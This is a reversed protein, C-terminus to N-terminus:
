VLEEVCRQLKHLADAYEKEDNGLEKAAMVGLDFSQLIETNVKYGSDIFVKLDSIQEASHKFIADFPFQRLGDQTMTEVLKLAKLLQEKNRTM